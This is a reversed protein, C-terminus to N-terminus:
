DLRILSIGKGSADLGRLRNFGNASFTGIEVESRTLVCVSGDANCALEYAGSRYVQVRTAMPEFNLTAPAIASDGESVLAFKGQFSQNGGSYGFNFRAISIPMLRLGGALGEDIPQTIWVTGRTPSSFEFQMQGEVAIASPMQYNGFLSQGGRVNLYDARFTSGTLNGANLYWASSGEVTYFNALNVLVANQRELNFSVGSGSTRYAGSADFNWNGSEPQIAPKNKEQVPVLGFALLRVQGQSDGAYPSLEIRVKYTGANAGQDANFVQIPMTFPTLVTPCGQGTGGDKLRVRILDQEVTTKELAYGCGDPATGKIELTFSEGESVSAPIARVTPLNNQLASAGFSVLFLGAASTASLCRYANSLSPRM